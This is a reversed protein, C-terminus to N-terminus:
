LFEIISHNAQFIEDLQPSLWDSVDDSKGHEGVFFDFSPDDDSPMTMKFFNPSEDKLVWNLSRTRRYQKELSPWMYKGGLLVCTIKINLTM